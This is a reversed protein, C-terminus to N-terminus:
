EGGGPDYDDLERALGDNKTGGGLGLREVDMMSQLVDLCRRTDCPPTSGPVHGSVTFIFDAWGTGIDGKSATPAGAGESPRPFQAPTPWPKCLDLRSYVGVDVRVDRGRPRPGDSAQFWPSYISVGQEQGSARRRAQHYALFLKPDALLKELEEAARRIRTADDLADGVVSQLRTALDALDIFQRVDLTSADRFADRIQRRLDARWVGLRLAEVLERLADRFRRVGADSAPNTAPDHKIRKGLQQLRYLSLGLAGADLEIAQDVIRKCLELLYKDKEADPARGTQARGMAAADRVAVLLRTLDLGPFGLTGQSAIFYRTVKRLQYAVEASSMFCSDFIVLDFPAPSRQAPPLKQLHAAELLADELVTATSVDVAGSLISATSAGVFQQKFFQQGQTAGQAVRYVREQPSARTLQGLARRVTRGGLLPELGLGVGAGHGWIVLLKRTTAADLRPKQDRLVEVIFDKLSRASSRRYNRVGPLECLSRNKIQYRRTGRFNRGEFQLGTLQVFVGIRADVEPQLLELLEAKAPELLEPSEIDLYFLVLWTFADQRGKAAHADTM